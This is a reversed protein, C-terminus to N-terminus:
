PCHAQALAKPQQAAAWPQEAELEMPSRFDLASHLRQRNYVQEIFEGISTRAHAIDRVAGGM